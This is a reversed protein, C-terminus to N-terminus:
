SYINDIGNYRYIYIMEQFIDVKIKHFFDSYKFYYYLYNIYM